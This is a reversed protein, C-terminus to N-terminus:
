CSRAPSTPSSGARRCRRSSPPRQGRQVIRGSDLVAIATPSSRRRPSTTPSSSRRCRPRPSSPRSSAARPPAPGRTSRRCRSTSSCCDRSPPSRGRSRWGSASAAASTPPVPTPGSASASASSRPRRAGAGTAARGASRRLRRQALGADAPVARLGPLRARRPAARGRTLHRGRRRVLTAGDLPSRERAGAAAPRRDCAAAHEQGAGSPGVLALCEGAGVEVRADLDFDGRTLVVEAALM